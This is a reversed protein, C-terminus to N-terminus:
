SRARPSPRLQGLLTRPGMVEAGLAECRSRLERDATVVVVAADPEATRVVEVIADDGSGPARVVRLPALRRVGDASALGDDPLGRAAAGEVVFAIEPFCRDYPPIGTMGKTALGSIEDRLRAAAGARDRWWGDARAGMVNAVDVVLVPRFMVTRLRPWSAAFPAFLRMREVGDAPEWAADRTESSAPRVAVREPASAIISTFEWGGHDDTLVGHVRVAEPALTCEEATERLAAAVDGEHSHRAGGFMGWTGAGNCWWARQQLLVYPEAAPEDRHFVLLGAAGHRGWHIHGRGCRAWGDGDGM